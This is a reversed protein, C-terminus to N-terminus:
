TYNNITTVTYKSFRKASSRIPLTLKRTSPYSFPMATPRWSRKVITYTKVITVIFLQFQKTFEIQYEEAFRDKKKESFM